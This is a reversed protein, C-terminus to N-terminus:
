RPASFWLAKDLLPTQPPLLPNKLEIVTRQELKALKIQEGNYKVFLKEFSGDRIADRLGTEIAKALAPNDKSVFFYKATPYHLVLKPELTLRSDAFQSQEGSVEAVSRPLYDFRSAALMKFLGDYTDSTSVRLGNALLIQTDPWDTGQGARLAKLGSAGRVKRFQEFDASKILLVRWGLLGKDIPIRVPLLAKEREKTTVTWIVNPEGNNQVQRIARGQPLRQTGERLTYPIGSRSLALDLTKISFEQRQDAQSEPPPYVVNLRVASAAVGRVPGVLLACM